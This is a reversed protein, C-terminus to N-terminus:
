LDLPRDRLRHKRTLNPRRRESVIGAPSVNKERARRLNASEERAGRLSANKERARRLNAVAVAIVIAATGIGIGAGEGVRIEDPVEALIEAGRKREGGRTEEV